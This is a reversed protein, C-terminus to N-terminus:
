DKVDEVITINLALPGKETDIPLFKVYQGPRLTKEDSDLNVNTYYAFYDTVNDKASTIFGFGKANNFFKIYGYEPEAVKCNPVVMKPVDKTVIVSLAVPGKETDQPIFDVEQFRKLKGGLVNEPRVYYDSEEEDVSRIFGYGKDEFLSKVYGHKIEKVEM